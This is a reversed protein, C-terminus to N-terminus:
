PTLQSKGPNPAWDTPIDAGGEKTLRGQFSVLIPNATLKGSIVAHGQKFGSARALLGSPTQSFLRSIAELDAASNMKMLILNEAQSLANAQIKDPRQSALLLYLGFKRGEGAIRVVHEASVADLASSPVAPCINHAEDIVVLTARRDNRSNWLRGLTAMMIAPRQEPLALTGVDIVTCRKESRLNEVLTGEGTDCWIDWDAIGLNAIRLGVRRAEPSFDAAINALVDRLSYKDKKLRDIISWFEHFEERDGIPDMGLLLGQESRGLDSFWLKLPVTGRTISGPPRLVTLGGQLAKYREAIETYKKATLGVTLTRNIDARRKLQGLSVFDSNPDIIIIRLQTELLLRELIVGLAFTKGSGSQGCLFTHRDFGAARLEIRASAGGYISAGVNITCMGSTASALYKAVTEESARNVSWDQFADEETPARVGKAELRGLLMGEGALIPIRVTDVFNSSTTSQAVIANGAANTSIGYEPGAIELAEQSTIQGIYQVGGKAIEVYSGIPLPLSIPAEYTFNLGNTSYAVPRPPALAKEITQRLKDYQSGIQGTYRSRLFSV